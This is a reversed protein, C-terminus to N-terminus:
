IEGGDVIVTINGGVPIAEPVSALRGGDLGRGQIVFRFVEIEAMEDGIYASVSGQYSGAPLGCMQNPPFLWTIAISAGNAVVSLRGTADDSSASLAYRSAGGQAWGYDRYSGAGDAPWVNFTFITRSPDPLGDAYITLTDRWQGRNSVPRHLNQM